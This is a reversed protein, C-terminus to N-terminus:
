MFNLNVLGPSIERCQKFKLMLDCLVLTIMRDLNCLFHVSHVINLMSMHFNGRAPTPPTHQPPARRASAVHPVAAGRRRSQPVRPERPAPPSHPRAGAGVVVGLGGVHVLEAVKAGRATLDAAAPVNNQPCYMDNM